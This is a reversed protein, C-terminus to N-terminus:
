AAPEAPGAPTHRLLRLGNATVILSAGTDALVAMWLTAVGAAALGVFALKLGLALAVNARINRLTARALRVVFPLRLLDDAMLAIDATELAVDSGAAGMAIGVDSAALAPADNVGDGVMAVAGHRRRLQEVARVKDEPMLGARAADLGVGAMVADAHAQSDGTLLVIERVGEHRLQAIAERGGARVDDTFGIVGLPSGARGVLVLNAGRREVEDIRAHLAPTCLSREEFLRHSGVVAPLEAVTAEAGLGPLARYALGPEVAIGATEAHAVIARGIPHESRSELSAAVGLVGDVSVDDVGLVATVTLRGETLTGTKDFAVCRVSALRELHAGGKILVGARAAATLASVISVPTSIVLACPCAVVLLAIARYGWVSPDGAAFVPPVIALLVALVVVAPTYVRAFRDVFAQVPARQRQAQEVLRVIHALTTDSAPRTVRLEIAGSGNISGAFVEDGPRKEAPWSEGTIPAQNVSSVGHVVTGDLPIRQGPRVVVVDGVAVSSVPLERDAGDRRVTATAPALTMLARIAHRARDMSRAELWGAIAYLWIVTAAELWEDLVLAGVVAVVMLANIDLVRARVARWARAAPTQVTLAISVLYAVRDAGALGAASLLWGTVIVLGAVGIRGWGRFARTVPAQVPAAPDCVGDCCDASV